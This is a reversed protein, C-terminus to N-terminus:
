TQREDCRGRAHVVLVPSSRWEDRWEALRARISAGSPGDPDDPQDRGPNDNDDQDDDQDDDTDDHDRWGRWQEFRWIAWFTACLLAEYALVSLVAAADGHLWWAIGLVAPILIPVLDAPSGLWPVLAHTWQYVHRMM